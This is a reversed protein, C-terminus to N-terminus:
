IYYIYVSGAVQFESTDTLYSVFCLRIYGSSEWVSVSGYDTAFYGVQESTYVKFSIIRDSNINLKSLQYTYTQMRGNSNPKSRDKRFSSISVEIVKVKKSVLDNISTTNTNVKNTLETNKTELVTIKTSNTSVTLGLRTAQEEANTAKTNAETIRADFGNVNAELSDLENNTQTINTEAQELRRKINNDEQTLMLMDNRITRITNTNTDVDQEVLEINAANTNIKQELKDVREKTVANKIKKIFGSWFVM